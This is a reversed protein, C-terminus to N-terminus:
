KWVSTGKQVSLIDRKLLAFALLMLSLFPLLMICHSFTNLRSAQGTTTSDKLLVAGQVAFAPPWLSTKQSHKSKIEKTFKNTSAILVKLLQLVKSLYIFKSLSYKEIEVSSDRSIKVSVSRWLFYLGRWGRLFIWVLKLSYIQSFIRVKLKKHFRRLKVVQLDPSKQVPLDSQMICM